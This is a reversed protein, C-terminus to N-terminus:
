GEVVLFRGDPLAFVEDAELLQADDMGSLDMGAEDLYDRVESLSSCVAAMCDELFQEAEEPSDAVNEPFLRSQNELFFELVEDDYM